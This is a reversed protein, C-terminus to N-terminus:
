HAPVAEPDILWPGSESRCVNTTYVGSMGKAHNEIRLRKCSRGDASSFAALLKISGSNGNDPDRWSKATGVGGGGLVETAAAKMLDFDHDNFFSVPSQKLFGFESQAMASFAWISMWAGFLKRLGRKKM